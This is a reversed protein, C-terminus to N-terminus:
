GITSIILEGGFNGVPAQSQLYDVGNLTVNKSTEPYTIKEEFNPTQKICCNDPIDARICAKLFIGVFLLVLVIGWFKKM